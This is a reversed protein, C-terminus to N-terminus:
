KTLIDKAAIFESIQSPEYLPAHYITINDGFKQFYLYQSTAHINHYTGEAIIEEGSGDPNIRKLAPDNQSSKQYFIGHPTINYFDIRDNTVATVSGDALNYRCLRYDNEIDLFYINGNEYIPNHVNYKLITQTTNNLTNYSCLFHNEKTNAYYIIGNECAAPIITNDLLIHMDKGTTNMSAFNWRKGNPANQFFLTNDTLLITGAPERSLTSIQTGNTKCRYIGTVKRVFGLGTSTISDPMYFYLYDGGCNLSSIKIDSLKRMNTEDSNMTYLTANDYFNAFYINGDKDECFYGGNYLNGATNGVTGIPNPPIHRLFMSILYLGALLLLAALTILLIKLANKM